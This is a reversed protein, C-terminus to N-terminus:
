NLVFSRMSAAKNKIKSATQLRTLVIENNNAIYNFEHLM